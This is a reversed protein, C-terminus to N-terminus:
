KKQELEKIQNGYSQIDINTDFLNEQKAIAIAQRYYDIAKAKDGVRGYSAALGLVVMKHTVHPRGEAGRYEEIAKGYQKDNLYASAMAIGLKDAYQRPPNTTRYREYVLVAEHYNGQLDAARAAGVARQYDAAQVQGRQYWIAGGVAAALLLVIAAGYFPAKSRHKPQDITPM